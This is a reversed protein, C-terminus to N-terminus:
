NLYDFRNLLFDNSLIVIKLFYGFDHREARDNFSNKTLNKRNLTEVTWIAM